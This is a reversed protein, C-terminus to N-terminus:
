NVEVFRGFFLMPWYKGTLIFQSTAADWAIGNPVFNDDRAIQAREDATMHGRLPAIDAKAEVCGTRPSIKLVTWHEFVNAWIAGDVYELENLNMVPQDQDQVLLTQQNTFDGPSLFFLSSSGDSAILRTADHTLGWGQRPNTLEHLPAMKADFVFVRHETYTMQYLRGGFATLGEGFYRRGANLVTKVHGTKLDIRNIGSEGFVDGTSEWLSGDHIELGETFGLKDRHLTKEVVFALDKPVPCPAAFAATACFLLSLCLLRM